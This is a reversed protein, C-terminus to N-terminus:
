NQFCWLIHSKVYHYYQILSEISLYLYSITWWTIGTKIHIYVICLLLLFLANGLLLLYVSFCKRVIREIILIYYHKEFICFLSVKTTQFFLWSQRQVNCSIRLIKQLCCFFSFCTEYFSQPHAHCIYECHLLYFRIM